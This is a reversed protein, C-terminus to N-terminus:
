KNMNKLVNWIKNKTENNLKNFGLKKSAEKPIEEEPIYQNNNSVKILADTIEEDSIREINPSETRYRAEIKTNTNSYLFNNKILIRDNRFLNKTLNNIKTKFKKTNKQNFVTKMRGYLEEIHIPSEKDVIDKVISESIYDRTEYLSLFQNPNTYKQYYNYEKELPKNETVTIEPEYDSTIQKGIKLDDKHKVAEKITTLLVQKAHTRNNYWDTSWIRHFEWGLGELVQQRLRDRDRASPSSHYPAGDCEIGLIYQDNNDPNRIALDIKYGACGVQKEVSYGQKDLFDYVSREFDSDFDEGTQYNPPFEQHEAYYLFNKLAFLGKRNEDVNLDGSKFNSFVVCKEKARTILVNLRREGGDRNLPGFNLNLKHNQDFGYGISILIIDREDGQINELNKVFFGNVGSDNFYKEIEPNEKIRVELEDYIAQQQKKSFTGIGLSKKNGYKKFHNIAYQIVHEAEKKNQSSSGREYITEPHYEFKLGLKESHNIPSPYVYLDNNYFEANSVAILSEHRSRYHWKLMKNPFALESTNLISEDDKIDSFEEEDDEENENKADFFSTPPLQKRDGFIVYHKGRMMAGIADEVKVQSAEDFIIYDFESEYIDPDLYQAISIPSMMFCPKIDLIVNKCKIFTKRLPAIRSKKSIEHLLIGLESQRNTSGSTYPRKEGLKELVRYRNTKIVNKDLEKFKEIKKNHIEPNFNFLDPNKNLINKLCNNAFNYRFLPIISNTEVQDADIYQLIEKTLNNKANESKLKYIRFNNLKSENEGLNLFFEELFQLNYSELNNNNVDDKFSLLNNLIKFEKIINNHNNKILNLKNNLETLNPNKELYKITKETFFNSDYLNNFKKILELESTLEDVNSDIGKWLDGFYYKGITEKSEIRNKLDKIKILNKIEDEVQESQSNITTTKTFKSIESKVEDLQSAWKLLKDSEVIIKEDSESGSCYALIQNRIKGLKDNWQILNTFDEILKDDSVEKGYYDKLCDRANKFDSSFLKKLFSDKNKKFIELKNELDTDNLAKELNSKDINTKYEKFDKISDNFGTKLISEDLSLSNINEHISSVNDKKDDLDLDLVKLDIDKTQTQFKTINRLLDELDDDKLLRLNHKLIKLHNEYENESKLTEFSKCGVLTSIESSVIKYSELNLNIDSLNKEIIDMDDPTLNEPNTNRWPNEGVPKIQNYIESVEKLLRESEGKFQPECKRLDIMNVKLPEQNNSELDQLNYECMGFLDYTNFGTDGYEESIDDMYKNLYTRKEDLDYYIDTPDTHIIQKDLTKKLEGLVEKKKAKNSHLELCGEGLGINDLRKKVVELAAKKESVFLVTKDNAILEAILNVITQSKGTGPPGEVVLDGGNKVKELVDIQSSDADLVHFVDSSHEIHYDQNKDFDKDYSSETPNFLNIINNDKVSDPWNELNLDQYMVFKKFNFDSLFIDDVVEWDKKDKIAENVKDLYNYVEDVSEFDEDFLPLEIDKDKLKYNLSINSLVDQSNYEIKFPKNLSERDLEVPILILPAKNFDVSSDSEKWKLFGLALFLNNYGQEEITTKCERYLSLLRKNLDEELFKTQLSLDKLNGSVFDPRHWVVDGITDIIEDDKLPLFNMSKGDLVLIKFCQGIDEQFISITKKRPKFNLLKNRMTLDLLNDRLGTIYGEIDSVGSVM